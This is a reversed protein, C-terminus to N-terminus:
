SLGREGGEGVLLSLGVLRQGRELLPELGGRTRELVARVTGGGECQMAHRAGKESM